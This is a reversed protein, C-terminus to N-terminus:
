HMEQTPTLKLFSWKLSEIVLQFHHLASSSLLIPRVPNRIKVVLSFFFFVKFSMQSSTMDSWVTTAPVKIKASPSKMGQIGFTDFEPGRDLNPLHWKFQSALCYLIEKLAPASSYYHAM